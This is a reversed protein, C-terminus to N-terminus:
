SLDEVPGTGVEADGFSENDLGLAQCISVMVRAHPVGGLDVYRGPTFAGGAPGALVWPVDTTKHSRGEGLEKAWLVVTDELLSEGTEPDPTALMLDLLYAFQEAFWREDEVFGQAMEGTADEAHSLSHHSLSHGLWTFVTSSLTTSLQVTAVRTADCALAQVALALQARTLDPFNDNSYISMYEPELSPACSDSGSLARELDRLSSLHAELRIREEAGLRGRLDSLEDMALDLVSARRRLLRDAAAANGILDGYLRTYVSRPDDDPTVWSEPGAYSVRSDETGGALSTQVGLELSAFRTPANLRSAVFQDLSMGGTESSADGHNTLVAAMAGSHGVADSLDMGGLVLLHERYDTLPELISDAAFSYDVGSGEPTWRTPINGDPTFFILLRRAKGTSARAPRELLRLFPAAIVSAASRRLLTRRNM